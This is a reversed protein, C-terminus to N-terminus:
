ILAFLFIASFSIIVVSGGISLYKWLLPSQLVPHKIKHILIPAVAFISIAFSMGLGMILILLITRTLSELVSIGYVSIMVAGPCPVLGVSLAMGWFSGKEHSHPTSRISKYLMFFGVLLLVSFSIIQFQTHIADSSSTISSNLIFHLSLVLILAAMAHLMGAVFGGIIGKSIRSQSALFYGSIILKGHGPGLAHLFGYAFVLLLAYMMGTFTTAASKQRYLQRYLQEQWQLLKHKLRAVATVEEHARVEITDQKAPAPKHDDSRNFLPNQAQVSAVIVLMVILLALRYRM